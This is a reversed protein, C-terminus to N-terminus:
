EREFDIGEVGEFSRTSEKDDLDDTVTGETVERAPAQQIHSEAMLASDLMERQVDLSLTKKWMEYLKLADKFKVYAETSAVYCAKGKKLKLEHARQFIRYAYEQQDPRVEGEFMPLKVTKLTETKTKM